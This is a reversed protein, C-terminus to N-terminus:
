RALKLEYRVATRKQEASSRIGPPAPGSLTASNGNVQYLFPKGTVPDLPVPADTIAGLSNPLKGEHANAYLRIAEICQLAVLERELVIAGLPVRNLPPAQMLFLALLPNALKEDGPSLIAPDIQDYSQWYPSNTGKYQWYPINIWKYFGDCIRRYEEMSYLAAVQIVPMAEVQAEPRGRAILARRARPYLKAAMAAIRIRRSLDPPGFPRVVLMGPVEEGSPLDLLKRQLGDTFQRAQDLGWAGRDVDNLEPLVRELVYREGEMARRMDIFPRPRDVLAWYLSPCGPAQILEELCQTFNRSIAIGILAQIMLPGQSIHRGMAFGTEIWHMAEDTQGDLIAVRVKLKMLRNLARMEQLEPVQLSGGEKRQDFEWDCTSRFAGLEVEKLADQFPELYKRAKDRQIEGIPCSLWTDSALMELSHPFAGPQAKEKARLRGFTESMITVGRHYFIAANGPVLKIQEPVLRYKLAPVPEAAPRLTMVTGQPGPPPQASAGSPWRAAVLLLLAMTRKM